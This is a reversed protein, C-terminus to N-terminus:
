EMAIAIGIAVISLSVGAFDIWTFHIPKATEWRIALAILSLSLLALIAPVLRTSVDDGGGCSWLSLASFAL